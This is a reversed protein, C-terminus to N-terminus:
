KASLEEVKKELARIRDFLAFYIILGIGITADPHEVELVYDNVFMLVLYTVLIVPVIWYKNIFEKLTENM